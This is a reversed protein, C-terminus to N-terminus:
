PNLPKPNLPNLPKTTKIYPGKIMLIPDQAGKELVVFM